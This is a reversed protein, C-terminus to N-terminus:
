LTDVIRGSPSPRLEGKEINQTECIKDRYKTLKKNRYTALIALDDWFKKLYLELSHRMNFCIPYVLFDPTTKLDPSEIAVNILSIAASSYGIAYDTNSRPQGEPADSGNPGVTANLNANISGSFTKNEKRM